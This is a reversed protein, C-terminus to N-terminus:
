VNEETTFAERERVISALEEFELEERRELEKAIAANHRQALELFKQRVTSAERLTDTANLHGTQAGELGKRAEDHQRRYAEEEARLIAIDRHLDNIDRVKVQRSFLAQYWANMDAEAQSAFQELAQRRADEIRHAEALRARAAQLAADAQRERFTKIALLEDLVPM